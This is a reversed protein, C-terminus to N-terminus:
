KIMSIFKHIDKERLQIYEGFKMRSANFDGYRERHLSKVTYGLASFINKVFHNRGEETTVSVSKFNNKKPFSITNFKSKRNEIYIGKLLKFKDEESLERDLIVSYERPIKNRPHMLLNAFDGDNTLLLTGTTNFDLRGIPFIAEHTAILDVVTKRNKEDKTSTIVGKPKNLLFYVKRATKIIDGDFRVMDNNPDVRVSLDTVTKGNIQIRGQVILEEAKRRSAIGCESLYKNLRLHTMTQQIQKTKM